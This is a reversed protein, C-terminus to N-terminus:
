DFVSRSSHLFSVKFKDVHVLMVFCYGPWTYGGKHAANFLQSHGPSSAVSSHTLWWLAGHAVHWIFSSYCHFVSPSFYTGHPLPSCPGHLINYTISNPYFPTAGVWMYYVSYSLVTMLDVLPLTACFRSSSTYMCMSHMYSTLKAFDNSTCWNKNSLGRFNGYGRSERQNASSWATLPTLM